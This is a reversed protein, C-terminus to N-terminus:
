CRTIRKECESIYAQGKTQQEDHKAQSKAMSDRRNQLAKGAVGSVTERDFVVGCAEYKQLADFTLCDGELRELAEVKLADRAEEITDCFVVKGKNGYGSGDSYQSLRYEVDGNSKGMLSVLRIMDFRRHGYSNEYRFIADDFPVIEPDYGCCAVYKVTGSMVGCLTDFTAEPLVDALKCVQAFMARYGALKERINNIEKQTRDRSQEARAQAAEADRKRRDAYSELPEDLLTKATFKEGQPIEDGEKTVFIEQVVYETKNIQGVIAVKRGDRLFKTEAKM